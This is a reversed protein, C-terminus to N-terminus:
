LLKLLNYGGKFYFLYDNAKGPHHITRQAPLYSLDVGKGRVESLIERTRNVEPIFPEGGYLSL